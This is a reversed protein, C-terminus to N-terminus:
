KPHLFRAQEKDIWARVLGKGKKNLVCGINCIHNEVTKKSIFLERAIQRNSKGEAMKRLVRCENRSLLSYAELLTLTNTVQKDGNKM